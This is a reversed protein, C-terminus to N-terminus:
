SGVEVEVSLRTLGSPQYVLFQLRWHGGMALDATGTFRGPSAEKMPALGQGMVMDLMTTLITVSARSVPQGARNQLLVVVTNPGSKGPKVTVTATLNGQRAIYTTPGAPAFGVPVPYYFMVSTALLVGLGLVPNVHLWNMLRRQLSYQRPDVEPTAFTARLRPRILFVTVFSVAMMMGILVMKVILTRGYVSQFFAYWSPIHVKAAFLGSLAFAAISLYAAPSFRKLTDLFDSAHRQDALHRIVPILVLAFYIQGGFWLADALFHVFDIAVSGSVVHSGAINGIGVSGAHGSAALAYLYLVNLTSLVAVPLSMGRRDGVKGWRNWAFVVALAILALVMRVLWLRGYQVSLIESFSAPGLAEPLGKGSLAEAQIVILTSSALILVILSIAVLTALRFRELREEAPDLANRVLMLGSVALAGGWTVAALLELWHALISVLTPTDPWGQGTSQSVGSLSPGPGRVKVSFLYYGHLVHGDEASVSTWLVLYSGPRLPKLRVELQRQQGPVLHAAGISVTHRYRDWVVIKSASANLDESFWLHVLSPSHKLLEGEDPDSRLLLAHAWAVGTSSAVLITLTATM